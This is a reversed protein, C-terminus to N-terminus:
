NTTQATQTTQSDSNIDGLQLTMSFTQNVVKALYALYSPINLGIRM